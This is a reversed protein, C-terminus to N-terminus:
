YLISVMVANKAAVALIKVCHIYIPLIYIIKHPYEKILKVNM